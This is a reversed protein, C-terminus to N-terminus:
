KRLSPADFWLGTVKPDKHRDLVLNVLVDDKEKSFRAKFLTIFFGEQVYFGIYEISKFKGVHKRLNSQLQLFSEHDSSKQMAASFDKTYKQYDGETIGQMISRVIATSQTEILISDPGKAAASLPLLACAMVSVFFILARSSRSRASTHRSM